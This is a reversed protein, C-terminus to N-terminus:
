RSTNWQVKELTVDKLKLGPTNRLLYKIQKRIWKPHYHTIYTTRRKKYYSKSPMLKSHNEITIKAAEEDTVLTKLWEVALVEAHRKINKYRKRNM